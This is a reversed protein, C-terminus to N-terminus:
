FPKSLKLYVFRQRLDAQTYDYGETTVESFPPAKNFLNFVGVRLDVDDLWPNSPGIGKGFTFGVQADVIFQSAVRRGTEVDFTNVDKYSHIYRGTTSLQLGRWSWALSGTAKWRPISGGLSISGARGAREIAPQGPLTAADFNNVYTASLGANFVGAGTEFRYDAKADFGDTKVGGFNASTSNVELIRGPFGAAIDAATPTGRIVRDPFTSENAVVINPTFRQVRLNQKIRWYDFSLRLGRMTQPSFVAGASFSKADEPGLDANGGSRLDVVYQENNRRPDVVTQSGPLFTAPQYLEFLTPPRFSTGYSARLRFDGNVDWEIGYQPNFTSGFDDYHDYRAAITATLARVLPVEMESSVLPVRIEGSVAVTNRDSDLVIGYADFAISEKRAEGGVVVEVDGAPLAFVPGAVFASIQKASSAFVYREPAAILSELLAASGGPGDQFPNLATSSDSSALAATRRAIDIQNTIQSWGDDHTLLGAVEWNWKGIDGKFGAVARYSESGSQDERPDMGTLFNVRVPVGFPNFANSAPVVLNSLSVPTLLRNDKRDSYMFEGFMTVSDAVDFEAFAVASLRRAVPIISSLGTPTGLNLMGATAQFDAPTLGIGTSGVPVAAFSSTLGPLPAGDVSMVNGPSVNLSRRDVGGFRRFDLDATLGRESGFLPTRKFYDFTFGSRFRDSSIGFSLSARKEDSGGDPTFGYHLDLVPREIEKKLIINVVGAVADAGYVASASNALIEIREVAPLPINNVDFFARAGQLSSTVTRRGNILVLTTGLGLGRLQISQAGAFNTNDSLSYSRQPLYNLVEGVSAAGLRDIDERAFTTVPAAGEPSAKLRSGTVVIDDAPVPEVAGDTAGGEGVLAPDDTSAADHGNGLPLVTYTQPGTARAKLGTGKLLRELAQEVDMQGKVANTRKGSTDKRAVGIQVDAQRGLQSIGSHAAQAPIDFSKVQAAAPMAAAMCVLASTAFLAHRGYTM